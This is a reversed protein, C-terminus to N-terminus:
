LFGGVLGTQVSAIIVKQLFSLSKLEGHCFPHVNRTGYQSLAIIDFSQQVFQVM